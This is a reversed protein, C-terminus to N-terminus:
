LDTVTTGDIGLGGWYRQFVAMRRAPARQPPTGLAEQVALWIPNFGGFVSAVMTGQVRPNCELVRPM